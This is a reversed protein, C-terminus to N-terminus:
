SRVCWVDIEDVAPKMTHNFSIAQRKGLSAKGANLIKKAKWGSDRLSDRIIQGPELPRDNIAGFRIVMQADSASSKALGSWVKRLDGAFATPSRHTLQGTVGYDVDADGGMFWDRLWQDAKYTRLGYYPPSTVIWRIKGLGDTL